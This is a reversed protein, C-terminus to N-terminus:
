PMGMNGPINIDIPHQNTNALFSNEFFHSRIKKSDLQPSGGSMPPAGHHRCEFGDGQTHCLALLSPLGRRERGIYVDAEELAAGRDAGPWRGAMSLM